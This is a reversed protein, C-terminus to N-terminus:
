LRGGRSTEILTPLEHHKRNRVSNMLTSPQKAGPQRPGPLAPARHDAAALSVFDDEELVLQLARANHAQINRWTEGGRRAGFGPQNQRIGLM